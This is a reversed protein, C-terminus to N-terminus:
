SKQAEDPKPKPYVAPLQAHWMKEDRKFDESSTVAEGLTEDAVGAEQLMRILLAWRLSQVKSVMQWLADDGGEDEAGLAHALGVRMDRIGNKWKTIEGICRPVATSVDSALRKMRTPYSDERFYLNLASILEKRVNAPADSTRLAAVTNAVEEETFRFSHPYLVRDLGEATTTMALAEAEVTQFSGSLAAAVVQPVPTLKRTLDCWSAVVELPVGERRLLLTDTTPLAAEPNISDGYVQCWRGDVQVEFLLTDCQQGALLTLLTQVPRVFRALAEELTWGSLGELTLYNKTRIQGGWVDPPSMTGTTELKLAAAQDFQTFPVTETTPPVFKLAVETTPKYIHTLAIGHTQAWLELHTFRARVATFTVNPGDIHAGAICWDARVRHLEPAGAFPLHVTRRHTTRAGLFTLQAPQFPIEGQVVLDGGEPLHKITVCNPDNQAEMWPTLAESVEIEILDGQVRCVGAQAKDADASAIWFRGVSQSPDRPFKQAAM